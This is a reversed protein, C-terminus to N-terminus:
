QCSTRSRSPPHRRQDHRDLALPPREAVLRRDLREPRPDLDQRAGGEVLQEVRHDLLLGVARQDRDLVREVARDVLVVVPELVPREVDDALRLQPDPLAQDRPRPRGDRRDALHRRM